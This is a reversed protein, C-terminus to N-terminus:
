SDNPSTAGTPSPGNPRAVQGPSSGRPAAAGRSQPVRRRRGHAAEDGQESEQPPQHVLDAALPGAIRSVACCSSVSSSSLSICPSSALAQTAGVAHGRCDSAGHHRSIGDVEQSIVGRHTLSTSGMNSLSNLVALLWTATLDSSCNVSLSRSDGLHRM